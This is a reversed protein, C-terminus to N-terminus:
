PKEGPLLPRLTVAYRKDGICVSAPVAGSPWDSATPAEILRPGSAADKPPFPFAWGRCGGPLTGEQASLAYHTPEYPRLSPHSFGALDKVLAALPQLAPPAGGPNGTVVVDLPKGKTMQLRFRQAAPEGFSVSSGLGPLKRVLALRDEFAKVEEKSLRGAAVRSTGGVFVEGDERLLFRYPAAAPFYGPAPPMMAELVVLADQVEGAAAPLALAIAAVVLAPKTV